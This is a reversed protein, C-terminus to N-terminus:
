GGGVVIMRKPTEGLSLAQTSSLINEGDFPLAPLQIPASGTVILINKAGYSENGNTGKVEVM